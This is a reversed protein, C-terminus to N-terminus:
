TQDPNKKEKLYRRLNAFFAAIWVIACILHMVFLTANSTYYKEFFELIAVVIWIVCALAALVLKIIAQKKM